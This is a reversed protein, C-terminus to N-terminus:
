RRFLGSILEELRNGRPAPPTPPMPPEPAIPEPASPTPAPPKPPFTLTRGNAENLSFYYWFGYRSFDSKFLAALENAQEETLEPFYSSEASHFGIRNRGLFDILAIGEDYQSGVDGLIHKPAASGATLWQADADYRRFDDSFYKLDAMDHVLVLHPRDQLKCLLGALIAHAVDYGHADWFVFIRQASAITPEFDYALIDGEIAEVANLIDPDRLHAELHPRSIVNFADSLCLSVIRCPNPRLMKAAVAMACTSNGYVRGLEIIVDPKFDLVISAVQLWQQHVFDRPGGMAQQLASRVEGIEAAAEALANRNNWIAKAPSFCSTM